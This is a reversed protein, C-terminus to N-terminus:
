NRTDLEQVRIQTDDSYFILRSGSDVLKITISVEDKNIIEGRIFAANGNMIGGVHGGESNARFEQMREMREEQSLNQFEELNFGEPMTRNSGVNATMNNQSFDRMNQFGEELGGIFIIEATISGNSNTTGTVMVEEGIVLDELTGEPLGEFRSDREQTRESVVDKIDKEKPEKSKIFFYIVGGIVALAIIIILIKKM